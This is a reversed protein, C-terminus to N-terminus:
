EPVPEGLLRMGPACASALAVRRAPPLRGAAGTRAGDLVDGAAGLWGPDAEIGLFGSLRALEDRPRAILDEYRLTALRDPPLDALAPLGASVMASWMRGFVEVPIDRDLGFANEFGGTCLLALDPPLRKVHEPTLERFHPVGALDLIETAFAATRYGGHRSMSLACDPGYRYMHIFKAEPFAARLASTWELSHGSREVVVRRGLRTALLDFLATHHDAATRAPWGPVIESLEDFLGDADEALHPLAMLAIAPIGGDQASFRGPRRPYLFEPLPADRRIMEDFVPHPDALLRWYEAGSMEGAPLAAFGGLSVFLENLSLVDPHQNLIRSLVTSGTRGTGVVFAVPRNM